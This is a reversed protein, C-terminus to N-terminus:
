RFNRDGIQIRDYNKDRNVGPPPVKRQQAHPNTDFLGVDNNNNNTEEEVRQQQQQQQQHQPQRVSVTVEDLARKMHLAFEASEETNPFNLSSIQQM